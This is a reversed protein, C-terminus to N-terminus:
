TRRSSAFELGPTVYTAQCSKGSFMPVIPMALAEAPEIAAPASLVMFFPVNVMCTFAGELAPSSIRVGSTWSPFVRKPLGARRRFIGIFCATEQETWDLRAQDIM